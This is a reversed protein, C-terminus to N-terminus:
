AVPQVRASPPQQKAGPMAADAFHIQHEAAKGIRLDRDQAIELEIFILAQEVDGILLHEGPHAPLFCRRRIDIARKEAPQAIEVRM